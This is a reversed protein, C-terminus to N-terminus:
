IKYYIFKFFMGKKMAKNENTIKINKIWYKKNHKEKMGQKNLEFTKKLM